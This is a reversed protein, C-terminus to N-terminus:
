KRRTRHIGISALVIVPYPILYLLIAVFLSSYTSFISYGGEITDKWSLSIFRIAFSLGQISWLVSVVAIILIIFFVIHWNQRKHEQDQAFMHNLLELQPILEHSNDTSDSADGLLSGVDIELVEAIKILQSADPVSLGQEWKSITQRVVHLQAALDAQSLGKAKRQKKINENLM